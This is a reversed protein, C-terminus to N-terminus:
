TSDSSPFIAYPESSSSTAAKFDREHTSTSSLWKFSVRIDRNIVFNTLNDSTINQNINICKRLLIVLSNTKELVKWIALPGLESDRRAVTAHHIASAVNIDNFFLTFITGFSCVQMSIRLFLFSHIKLFYLFFIQILKIWTLVM